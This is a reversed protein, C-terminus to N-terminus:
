KFFRGFGFPSLSKKAFKRFFSSQGFVKSVIILLIFYIISVVIIYLISYLFKNINEHSIGFFNLIPNTFLGSLSGNVAFVIIILTLQTNSSIGWHKKLKNM